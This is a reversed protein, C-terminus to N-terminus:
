RDTRPLQRERLLAEVSNGDANGDAGVFMFDFIDGEAVEVRAGLKLKAIRVPENILVGRITNENWSVVEVWMWETGGDDTRFPAKVALKAGPELGEIVQPKYAAICRERAARSAAEIEADHEVALVGAEYGFLSTFVQAQREQERAGDGFDFRLIINDPDGDGPERIECAVQARGEPEGSCGQRLWARVGEHRISEISLTLIGKELAAENELLTQAALAILREVEDRAGRPFRDLVLDPLGLKDMGYSVARMWEGDPYVHLSGHRHVAPTAEHWGEVRLQEWADPSFTELTTFDVILAGTKRAAALVLNSSARLLPVASEGRAAFLLDVRSGAGVAAAVQADDLGHGLLRVFQEDLGEGEAIAGGGIEVIPDAEPDELSETVALGRAPEAALARVAAPRAALPEGAYLLRVAHFVPPKGAPASEEQQAAALGSLALLVLGALTRQRM